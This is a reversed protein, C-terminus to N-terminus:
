PKCPELSSRISPCSLILNAQHGWFTLAPGSVLVWPGLDGALLGGLMGCEVGLRHAGPKCFSLRAVASYPKHETLHSPLLRGQWLESDLFFAM